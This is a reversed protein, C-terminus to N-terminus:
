KPSKPKAQNAPDDQDHTDPKLDPPPLAFLRGAGQTDSLSAFPLPLKENKMFHFIDSELQEDTKLHLELKIGPHEVIEFNLNHGLYYHTQHGPKEGKIKPFANNYMESCPHDAAYHAYNKGDEYYIVEAGDFPTSVKGSTNAFIPPCIRNQFWLAIKGVDIDNITKIENLNFNLIIVDTTDTSCRIIIKYKDLALFTHYDLCKPTTINAYISNIGKVYEHLHLNEILKSLALQNNETNQCYAFLNESPHNRLYEIIFPLWLRLLTMKEEEIDVQPAKKVKVKPRSNKQPKTDTPITPINVCKIFNAFNNYKNKKIRMNEIIKLTIAMENKLDEATLLLFPLPDGQQNCFIRPTEFLSNLESYLMFYGSTSALTRNAIREYLAKQFQNFNSIHKKHNPDLLERAIENALPLLYRICDQQDASLEEILIKDEALKEINVRIIDPKPSDSLPSTTIGYAKNAFYANKKKRFRKAAMSLVISWGVSFHDHNGTFSISNNDAIRLKDTDGMKNAHPLEGFIGPKQYYLNGTIFNAFLQHQEASNALQLITKEQARDFLCEEFVIVGPYTSRIHKYLAIRVEPNLHSAADIRLGAFGCGTKSNLYVDITSKLHELIADKVTSSNPNSSDEIETCKFNYETIDHIKVGKWKPHTEFTSSVNSSHKWVFDFLVSVGNKKADQIMERLMEIDFDWRIVQTNNPAYLSGYLTTMIGTDSCRRHCPTLEQSPISNIPNIWVQAFGMEKAFAIQNKLLEMGHRADRAPLINLAIFRDPTLHDQNNILRNEM